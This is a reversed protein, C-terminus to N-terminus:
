NEHMDVDVLMYSFNLLIKFNQLERNKTKEVKMPITSRLTEVLDYVSAVFNLGSGHLVCGPM